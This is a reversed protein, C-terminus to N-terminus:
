DMLALSAESFNKADIVDLIEIYGFLKRARRKSRIATLVDMFHDDLCEIVISVEDGTGPHQLVVVYRFMSVPRDFVGKRPFRVAAVM